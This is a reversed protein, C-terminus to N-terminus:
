LAHISKVAYMKTDAPTEVSIGQIPTVKYMKTDAPTDYEKAAPASGPSKPKPKLDKGKGKDAPPKSSAGAPPDAKSALNASKGDPIRVFKYHEDNGGESGSIKDLIYYGKREFQITDGKKLKRINSDTVVDVKFETVPTIFDKVDDEEELKKKTILYDYDHLTAAIHPQSSSPAAIWTIKKKTKKFDGELHLEAKISLVDGSPSVEKSRIFANGWDMLTVEENDDFSAADEQEVYITPGYVTSKTGCDSNKKHLPNSKV